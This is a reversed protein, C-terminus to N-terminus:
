FIFFHKKFTKDIKNFITLSQSGQIVFAGDRGCQYLFASAEGWNWFLTVADGWYSFGGGLNWSCLSCRCSRCCLIYSSKEEELARNESNMDRSAASSGRPLDWDEWTM